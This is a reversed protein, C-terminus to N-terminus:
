HESNILLAETENGTYLEAQQVPVYPHDDFGETEDSDGGCIFAQKKGTPVVNAYKRAHRLQGVITTEHKEIDLLEVTSTLQYGADSLKPTTRGSVILIKGDKLQALSHECRPVNMKTMAEFRNTKPDFIETGYVPQSPEPCWGGTFLFRGDQLRIVEADRRPYTMKPGARVKMTKPDFFWSFNTPGDDDAKFNLRDYSPLLYKHGDPLITGGLILIEGNPVTIADSCVFRKKSKGVPLIYTTPFDNVRINELAKPRTDVENEHQELDIEVGNLKVRSVSSWMNPKFDNDVYNQKDILTVSNEPVEVTAYPYIQPTGRLNSCGSLAVFSCVILVSKRLDKSQYYRM